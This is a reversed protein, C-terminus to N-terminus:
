RYEQRRAGDAVPVRALMGNEVFVTLRDALTVPSISGLVDQFENFRRIGQLAASLIFISWRDALVSTSDM